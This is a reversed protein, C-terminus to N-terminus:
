TQQLDSDRRSRWNDPKDGRISGHLTADYRNDFPGYWALIRGTPDGLISLWGCDDFYLATTYIHTRGPLQGEKLVAYWGHEMPPEIMKGMDYVGGNIPNRYVEKTFVAKPDQRSHVILPLGNPQLPTGYEVVTIRTVPVIKGKSIEPLDHSGAYTADSPKRCFEPNHIPADEMPMWGHCTVGGDEYTIGWAMDDKVIMVGTEIKMQHSAEQSTKEVM